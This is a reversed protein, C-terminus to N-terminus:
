WYPCTKTHEGTELWLNICGQHYNQGCQAECWTLGEGSELAECCISCDGELRRRVGTHPEEPSPEETPASYTDLTEPEESASRSAQRPVDQHIILDPVVQITSQSVPDAQVPETPPMSTQHQVREQGQEILAEAVAVLAAINGAPEETQFQSTSSRLEAVTSLEEPSSTPVNYNSLMTRSAEIASSLAVLTRTANTLAESLHATENVEVPTNMRERAERTRREERAEERASEAVLAREIRRERRERAHRRERAEERATEAEVARELRRERAERAHRRERAEERATEADRYREIRDNWKETFDCAQNQHHRKCLLRPALSDLLDEIRSSSPDLKSIRSLLKAAEQRNAAAISNHCRRGKSPAWGVCTFGPANPDVKLVDSADWSSNNTPM